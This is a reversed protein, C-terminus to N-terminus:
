IWKYPILDAPVNREKDRILLLIKNKVKLFPVKKKPVFLGLSMSSTAIFVLSTSILSIYTVKQIVAIKIFIKKFVVIQCM